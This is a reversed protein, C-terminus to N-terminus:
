KAMQEIKEMRSDAASEVSTTSDIAVLLVKTVIIVAVALIILNKM